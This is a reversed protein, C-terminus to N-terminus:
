KLYQKLQKLKMKRIKQPTYFHGWIYWLSIRRTSYYFDHNDFYIEYKTISIITYYEDKKLLEDFNNSKKCLLKDGVKM